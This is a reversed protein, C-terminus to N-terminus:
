KARAVADYFVQQIKTRTGLTLIKNNEAIPYCRNSNFIFVIGTVPDAWATIGTFGTHGFSEDTASKCTPGPGRGPVPKDFGIGRRNGNGPFQSRIFEKVTEEKLYREGGYEGYNNFMQLMAALHYVNAFLGAHGAVGGMMAAGQDHVDGWLQQKRFITDNESPTIRDRSFKQLPNFTMTALGMPAYFHKEMYDNLRLGSKREIIEQMLYFGMDSYKYKRTNSLGSNVITNFIVKRYDRSIYMHEATRETHSPKPQRAYITTDPYGNKLTKTYFPIWPYLGAQHTLMHRINVRAFPTGETVDPLYVGLVSDVSL